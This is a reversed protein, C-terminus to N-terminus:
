WRYLFSYCVSDFKDGLKSDKQESELRPSHESKTSNKKYKKKKLRNHVITAAMATNNISPFRSPPFQSSWFNYNNNVTIVKKLFESFPWTMLLGRHRPQKKKKKQELLAPIICYTRSSLNPTSFFLPVPNYKDRLYHRHGLLPIVRRFSPNKIRNTPVRLKFVCKFFTWIIGTIFFLTHAILRKKILLTDSCQSAQM